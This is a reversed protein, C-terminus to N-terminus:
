FQVPCLSPLWHTRTNHVFSSQVFHHLLQILYERYSSAGTFFKLLTKYLHMVLPSIRSPDGTEYRGIPSIQQTKGRHLCNPNLTCFVRVCRAKSAM